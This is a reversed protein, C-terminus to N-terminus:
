IVKYFLSDMPKPHLMSRIMQGRVTMFGTRLVYAMVVEGPASHNVRVIDTGAFLLHKAQTGFDIRQEATGSPRLPTKNVPVSEGTLSSENVIVTGAVLVCDVPIKSRRNGIEILDGPVLDEFTVEKLKFEGNICEEQSDHELKSEHM